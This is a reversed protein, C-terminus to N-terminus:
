SSRRADELAILDAEDQPRGAARKMRILDEYSCAYLPTDDLKLEVADRKLDAYDRGETWSIADLPGAETAFRFHGGAVLADVWDYAEGLPEDAFEVRADLTRLVGVLRECSVLETSYVLDVDRTAREYGHVAVALGGILVFDVRAVALKRVLM